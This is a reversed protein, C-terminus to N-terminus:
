IVAIEKSKSGDIVGVAGYDDPSTTSGHSVDFVWDSDMLVDKALTLM